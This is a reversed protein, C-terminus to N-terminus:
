FWCRVALWGCIRGLGRSCSSDAACCTHGGVLEKVFQSRKNWGGGGMQASCLFACIKCLIPENIGSCCGCDVEVRDLRLNRACGVESMVIIAMARMGPPFSAQWFRSSITRCCWDIKFGVPPSSMTSHQILSWDGCSKHFRWPCPEEVNNQCIKGHTVADLEFLVCVANHSWSFVCLEM